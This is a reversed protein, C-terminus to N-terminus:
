PCSSHMCLNPFVQGFPRVRILLKQQKAELLFDNYEIINSCLHYHPYSAPLALWGMKVYRNTQTHLVHWPPITFREKIRGGHEMDLRSISNVRSLGFQVGSLLSPAINELDYTESSM